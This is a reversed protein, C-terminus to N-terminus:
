GEGGNKEVSDAADFVDQPIENVLLRGRKIRGGLAELFAEYKEKGKLQASSHAEPSLSPTITLWFKVYLALAETSIAINRELRQTHRTLRDLRKSIAAERQDATEPSFFNILASEVVVSKHMNHAEAFEKIKRAMEPTLYLNLRNSVDRM